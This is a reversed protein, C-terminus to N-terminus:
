ARAEPGPHRWVRVPGGPSEADPDITCGLRKALATSRTNDDEIYSVATTWGLRDYADDRAALAAEHAIGKGEATGYAIWTLEGEPWGDPQKPGVLGVPEEGQAVTWPGFGKHLWHWIVTGYSRWAATRNKYGAFFRAADTEMFAAYAPWDEVRPPRLILRETEIEPIRFDVTM